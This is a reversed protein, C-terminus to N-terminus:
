AMTRAGCSDNPVVSQTGRSMGVGQVLDQKQKIQVKGVLIDNGENSLYPSPGIIETQPSGWAVSVSLYRAAKEKHTRILVPADFSITHQLLPRSPCVPLHAESYKNHKTWHISISNEKLQSYLVNQILSVSRLQAALFTIVINIGVTSTSPVSKRQERQENNIEESPNEKGKAQSWDQLLQPGLLGLHRVQTSFVTNCSPFHM